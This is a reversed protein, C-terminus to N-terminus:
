RIPPKRAETPREIGPSAGSLLGPGASAPLSDAGELPLGGSGPAVATYRVGTRLGGEDPPSANNFTVPISDCGSPCGFVDFHLHPGTTFGTLGVRAIPQGAAVSDGVEVLVGDKMLHAYSGVTGDGHMIEVFNAENLANEDNDVHSEDLDRVVGGRAAVVTRGVELGFDYAYRDFGSHSFSSCNGQGVLTSEGVPIPLQYPSSAATPYPGCTEAEPATPVIRNDCGALLALLLLARPVTRVLARAKM